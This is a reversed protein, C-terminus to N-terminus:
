VDIIEYKSWILEIIQNQHLHYKLWMEPPLNHWLLDSNTYYHLLDKKLLTSHSSNNITSWYHMCQTLGIMHWIIITYITHQIRYLLHIHAKTTWLSTLITYYAEQSELSLNDVLM